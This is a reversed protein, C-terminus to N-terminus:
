DTGWGRYRDSFRFESKEEASFWFGSKPDRHSSTPTEIFERIRQLLLPLDLPKEMVWRAGEAHAWERQHPQATIIIVPLSPRLHALHEMAEWGDMGPM